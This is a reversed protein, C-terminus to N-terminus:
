LREVASAFHGGGGFEILIEVLEPGAIREVNGSFVVEAAVFAVSGIQVDGAFVEDVDAVNSTGIGVAVAATDHRQIEVVVAPLVKDDTLNTAAGQHDKLVLKWLFMPEADAKATHFAVAKADARANNGLEAFAADDSFHVRHVGIVRLSGAHNMEAKAISSRYVAKGDKPRGALLLLDALYWSIAMHDNALAIIIHM